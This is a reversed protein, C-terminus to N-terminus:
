QCGRIKTITAKRAIVNSEQSFPPCRGCFITLFEGLVTVSYELKQCFLYYKSLQYNNLHNRQSNSQYKTPQFIWVIVFILKKQKANQPLQEQTTNCYM